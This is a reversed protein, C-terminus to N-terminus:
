WLWVTNSEWSYMRALLLCPYFPAASSPFMYKALVEVDAALLARRWVTGGEMAVLGGPCLWPVSAGLLERPM